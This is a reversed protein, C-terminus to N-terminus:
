LRISIILSLIALVFITSSISSRLSSSSWVSFGELICYWLFSFLSGILNASGLVILVTSTLSLQQQDANYKKPKKLFLYISLNDKALTKLFWYAMVLVLLRIVVLWNLLVFFGWVFCVFWMYTFLRGAIDKVIWDVGELLGEGTRASCGIIGWHRTSISELDLYEKIENTTLSGEIDQKNCFILLTAGM